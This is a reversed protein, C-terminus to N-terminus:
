SGEPWGAPPVLMEIGVDHHLVRWDALDRLESALKSQPRLLAYKAGTAKVATLWGPNTADMKFNQELEADTYIDGYGNMVLDLDPFRWMLYGGRGWDDLVVTGAPLADVAGFWEPDPPPKNATHPVAVALVALCAVASGLVVSVETRTAPQREGLLEQLARAVLPVLIMAAVVVTRTTYLAWGGALLVLLVETWSAPGPRRLLRVLLVAAMILFCISFLSRFTPSQWEAFYQARSGVLLVAPYLKPGVPTLAAAVASLVPIAALRLWQRRTTARDLAIGVVAVAGIVIGVPWMGHVMAWVWTLPVLWWRAKQDDRTSMWATTTVVVLLFSLVQPRMSIGPSAALLALILVPAAAVPGAYRRASFWIALGLGVHLVGALFAVGALGWWDELQAMVVQPLWQTPVWDNTGFTTVSGPHRLSWTGDLFEHGFRLHFYTDANSLPESDRKTLAALSGAVIILPVVLRLRDLLTRQPPVDDPAASAGDAPAPTLSDVTM